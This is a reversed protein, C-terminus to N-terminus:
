QSLGSSSRGHGLQLDLERAAREGMKEAVSEVNPLHGKFPLDEGPLLWGDEITIEEVRDLGLEIALPGIM